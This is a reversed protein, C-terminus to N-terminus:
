RSGVVYESGPSGRVIVRKGPRLRQMPGEYCDAYFHRVFLSGSGLQPWAIGTPLQLLRAGTRSGAVPVAETDYLAEAFRRAAATAVVVSRIRTVLTAGQFLGAAQLTSDDALPPGLLSAPGYAQLHFSSAAKRYALTPHKESIDRKLERVTMSAPALVKVGRWRGNGLEHHVVLNFLSSTSGTAQSSAADATLAATASSGTGSASALGDVQVHHSVPM